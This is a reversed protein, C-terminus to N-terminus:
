KYYEYVYSGVRIYYSGSPLSTISTVSVKQGNANFIYGISLVYTELQQRTLRKEIVIDENLKITDQIPKDTNVIFTQENVVSRLKSSYSIGNNYTSIIVVGVAILVISMIIDFKSM